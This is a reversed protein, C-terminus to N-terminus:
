KKLRSRFPYNIWCLWYDPTEGTAPRSMIAGDRGSVWMAM